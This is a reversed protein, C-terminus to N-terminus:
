KVAIGSYRRYKVLDPDLYHTYFFEPKITGTLFILPVPIQFDDSIELNYFLWNLIKSAKLHFDALRKKLRRDNYLGISSEFGSLYFINLRSNILSPIYALAFLQREPVLKSIKVIKDLRVIVTLLSTPCLGLGKQKLM